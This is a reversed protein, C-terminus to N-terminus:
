TFFHIHTTTKSTKLVQIKKNQYVFHLEKQACLTEEDMDKDGKPVFIM